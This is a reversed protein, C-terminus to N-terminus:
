AREAAGAREILTSGVGDVTEALNCAVRIVFVEALVRKEVSWTDAHDVKAPGPKAGIHQAQVVEALDDAITFGGDRTLSVFCEEVVGVAAVDSEVEEDGVGAPVKLFGRSDVVGALDDAVAGVRLALGVREQERGHHGLWCRVAQEEDGDAADEGDSSMAGTRRDFLLEDAPYRTVAAQV